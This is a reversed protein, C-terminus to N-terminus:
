FDFSVNVFCKWIRLRLQDLFRYRLNNGVVTALSVGVRGPLSHTVSLSHALNQGEGRQRAVVEVPFQVPSVLEPPVRQQAGLSPAAEEQLVGM